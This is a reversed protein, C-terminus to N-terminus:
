VGALLGFVAEVADDEENCVIAFEALFPHLPENVGVFVVVPKQMLYAWGMEVATGTSDKQSMNALVVNARKVDYLCTQVIGKQTCLPTANYAPLILADPHQSPVNRTPDIAKVGLQSLAAAVRFRWRTAHSYTVGTVPGALYVSSGSLPM